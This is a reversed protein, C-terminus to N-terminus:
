WRGINGFRMKVYNRVNEEHVTLLEKRFDYNKEIKM